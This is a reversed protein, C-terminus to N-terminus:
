FLYAFNRKLLEDFGTEFPSVMVGNRFIALGKVGDAKSDFMWLGERVGNHYSGEERLVPTLITWMGERKGQEYYGKETIQDDVEVWYGEKKGNIIGNM